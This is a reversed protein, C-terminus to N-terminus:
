NIAVVTAKAKNARLWLRSFKLTYIKREEYLGFALCDALESLDILVLPLYTWLWKIADFCRCTIGQDVLFAM